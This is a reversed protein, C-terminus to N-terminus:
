NGKIEIESDPYDRLVLEKIVSFAPRRGVYFLGIYLHGDFGCEYSKLAVKTQVENLSDLFCDIEHYDDFALVFPTEIVM